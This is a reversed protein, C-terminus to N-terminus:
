FKIEITKKGSKEVTKAQKNTKESKTKASSIDVVKTASKKKSSGTNKARTSKKRAKSVKKKGSRSSSVKSKRGENQGSKLEALQIELEQIRREDDKSKLIAKNLKKVLMATQKQMAELDTRTPMNSAQMMEDRIEQSQKKYASLANVMEGYLQSHEETFVYEAYAEENCDVWLNYLQRLSTIEEGEEAMKIIRDRLGDLAQVGIKGMADNYEENAKIFQKLLSANKQLKEQFERAYGVGPLNMYKDMFTDLDDSNLARAIDKDMGPIGQFIQSLYDGPVQWTDLLQSVSQHGISQSATLVSKMSEIQDALQKLWADSGQKQQSINEMLDSLHRALFYFSKSQELIRNATPSTLDPMEPRFNQWWFEMAKQWQEAKNPKSAGLGTFANINNIYDQFLENWDNGMSGPNFYDKTM